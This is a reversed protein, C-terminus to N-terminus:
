SDKLTRLSGQLIRVSEQMPILQESTCPCCSWCACCMKFHHCYLFLYYDNKLIALSMCLPPHSPLTSLFPSSPSLTLLTLLTLPMPNAMGARFPPFYLLMLPLLNRSLVNFHYFPSPSFNSRSDEDSSSTQDFIKILLTLQSDCTPM